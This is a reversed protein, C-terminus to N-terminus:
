PLNRAGVTQVAASARDALLIDCHSAAAQEQANAGFPIAGAISFESRKHFIAAMAERLMRNEIVLFLRTAPTAHTDTLASM